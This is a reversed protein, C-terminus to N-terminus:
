MYSLGATVTFILTGNNKTFQLHIKLQTLRERNPLPKTDDTVWFLGGGTVEFKAM